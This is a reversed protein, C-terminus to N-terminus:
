LIHPEPKVQPPMVLRGAAFTAGSWHTHVLGAHSLLARTAAAMVFLRGFPALLAATVPAGVLRFMAM